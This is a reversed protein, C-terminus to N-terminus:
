ILTFRELPRIDSCRRNSFRTIESLHLVKLAKVMGSYYNSFRTIESLHLVTNKQM